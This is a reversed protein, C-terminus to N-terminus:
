EVGIVGRLERALPRFGDFAIVIMRRNHQPNGDVFAPSRGAEAIRTLLLMQAGEVGQRVGEIRRARHDIVVAPLM